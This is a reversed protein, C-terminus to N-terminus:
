SLEVQLAALIDKQQKTLPLRQVLGNKLQIQQIKELERIVKKLSLKKTAEAQKIRKMMQSRIILGIFAIFVKGETTRTHHTRMRSYDMGNKLQDFSKEIVDKRRYIQIAEEATLETDTSILAFYGMREKLQDIKDYDLTYEIEREGKTEVTFYKNLSPKIKDKTALALLEKEKRHIDDFMVKEEYVAKLPDFYILVRVPTGEYTLDITRAYLDSDNLRERSSFPQRLVQNVQEKYFQYHKPLLSLLRYGREVVEQINGKTLFGQDMVFRLKKMGLSEMTAMMYPLYTKDVISGSYLAYYLPLGSTEGYYMGLNMQALNEKDRNYGREVLTIAESYSSISTVDYAIYEDEQAKKMWESFFTTRNEETLESFFESIRQSSMSDITSSVGQTWDQYDVMVNGHAMMYAALNLINDSAEGFANSLTSDLGLQKAVQSFATHYGVSQVSQPSDERKEPFLEFYNKNPILKGTTPDLKGISKEDSTPQGKSNRYARLTYYVYKTGNPGNKYTIRKEPLDVLQPTKM